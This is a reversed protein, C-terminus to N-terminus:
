TLRGKQESTSSVFTISEKMLALNKKDKSMDSMDKREILAWEQMTRKGMVLFSAREEAVLKEIREKPLKLVFAYPRSFGFVKKGMLFSAHTASKKLSVGPLGELLDLLSILLDLAEPSAESLRAKRKKGRQPRAKITM